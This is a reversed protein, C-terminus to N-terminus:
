THEIIASAVDTCSRVADSLLEPSHETRVKMWSVVKGLIAVPPNAYILAERVTPPLADEVKTDEAVFLIYKQDFPPYGIEQEDWVTWDPKETYKLGRIHVQIKPPAPLQARVRMWPRQGRGPESRAYSQQYVDVSVAVGDVEGRLNPYISKPNQNILGFEKELRQVLVRSKALNKKGMKWLFFFLVAFLLFVFCAISLGILGSSTASM